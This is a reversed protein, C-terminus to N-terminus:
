VISLFLNYRKLIEFYYGWYITRDLKVLIYRAYRQGFESPWLVTIIAENYTNIYM